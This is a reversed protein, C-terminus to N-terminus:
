ISSEIGLAYKSLAENRLGFEQVIARAWSPMENEFYKIELIFSGRWIRRLGVVRFLNGIKPSPYHKINKDFTIRVGSDFKGHYAERQYVILTKPKLNFKEVNFLFRTANEINIYDTESFVDSIIGNKLLEKAKSFDLFARNKTVRDEVKRKIELVVKSNNDGYGRLRFKKRDRLGEIKEFYSNTQYSDFYISRVIYEPYGGINSTYADPILFPEFRARLANLQSVPVLYKKEHRYKIM